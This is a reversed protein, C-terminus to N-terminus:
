FGFSVTAYPGVFALDSTTGQLSSQLANFYAQAQYGAELKFHCRRAYPLLYAFGLKQKVAPVFQTRYDSKGALLSFAGEGTLQFHRTIDYSFDFGVQIGAGNFSSISPILQNDIVKNVTANIVDNVSTNLANNVANSLADSITNNSTATVNQLTNHFEKIHAFSVGYYLNGELYNDFIFHQGYNLNVEDFNLQVVNFTSQSAPYLLTRDSTHIREWNLRVQTDLSCIHTIFQLDFGFQYTPRIDEISVNGTTAATYYLDSVLPKVALASFNTEFRCGTKAIELEAAIFTKEAAILTNQAQRGVNSTNDAHLAVASLAVLSCVKFASLIYQNFNNKNTKDIPNLINM